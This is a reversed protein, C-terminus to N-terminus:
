NKKIEFCLCALIKLPVASRVDGVIHLSFYEAFFLMVLAASLSFILSYIVANRMIKRCEGEREDGIAEAILRTVTLSIGSTAFTIAFAYINMILTFLGIGEAGVTKTIYSNFAISVSRIALGVVTLLIGNLFFRRRRSM